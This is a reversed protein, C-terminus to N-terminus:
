LRKFTAMDDVQILPMEKKALQKNLATLEAQHEDFATMLETVDAEIGEALAIQPKSPSGPYQSIKRYLESIREHIEKGENVYGDGGMAVLQGQAALTKESFETLKKALATPAEEAQVASQKAMEGLAYYMYAVDETMHYLKMSVERQLEREVLTYPAEEDYSLTFSGEYVDRGKHLKVKYTGAELSPGFATGFLAMRNNTPAAKPRDLRVPMAVVNIGARKGAPLTKILSDRSDYVEVFMKGFTHRRSMYYVIEASSGPNQGVFNGAGSFSNGGTGPDRIITPETALFQVKQGMIEDNLQRLPSLDDIIIIGRGHTAMVLSHEEPHMVMDRIAVKPLNNSFRAWNAGGDISIYLGFETGLYLMEPNVLDQRVSLAYGELEEAGLSEWSKGMDTTKYIYTMGDGTRHGDFTVFCTSADHPSPEVYTVWTNAPLSPIAEVVNAWTGGGDTTLQLNGDDTGVWIVQENQPSEAMTYITCYNEATSNDISLGGSKSQQQKEPDNTTLDDSLRKWSEGRDESMFLYQAGLYIREPNNASLHIPANWNYRYTEEPNDSYPQIDKAVGTKENVRVLNGGQYEAYVIDKDVPHRFMYFGDGGFLNTWDGNTIGGAKRSSAYWSGNDQLGGYVRYPKEMDVSVHYFQSIPLNMFMKFTYAGDLSEYVGGDTGVIVHKPNAPDVWVDHVDSHVGSGITRFSEGRNKSRILSLGCKYVVSDNTPDVILNSFYFPRVKTGFDGNIKEWNAGKDTSLYLGKQEDTKCEVTAYLLDPNTPAVAVAFRGLKEEPFGNHIKEWNQGGDTSKYLGSNGKYGSDFFWPLRRHDWMAAYLINPDEPDMALDSCGTHENLYFIKEWTTGGDTTRYVGRDEHDDWLHGMAAVYVTNHSDPHIIIDAIRETQELGMQKWGSGGNTTKYIGTGVSVSNRTWCEGTGVWVTDPHQQDIAIKGISQTHDDFVPRFQGGASRSKWVGGGAAGVYIITPDNDVVAISSVRGSMRAPGIERARLDGFLTKLKPAKQAFGMSFSLLLFSGALLFRYIMNPLM